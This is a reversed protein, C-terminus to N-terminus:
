AFLAKLVEDIRSCLVLEIKHNKQAIGKNFASIIIKEFGLKEAELIRQEIRNV